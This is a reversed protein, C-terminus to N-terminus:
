VAFSADTAVRREYQLGDGEIYARTPFFWCIPVNGFVKRFNRSPGLDFEAVRAARTPDTLEYMEITTRGKAVLYAHFCVFVGLAFAFAACMIYGIMCITQLSKSLPITTTSNIPVTRRVTAFTLPLTKSLLHARTRPIASTSIIAYFTPFSVISVFLCGLFAYTIFSVFFKHNYFSVCNNVFVCHHDMRLICRSCVSCHHARDPKYSKCFRCYRLSGDYTREALYHAYRFTTKGVSHRQEESLLNRDEETQSRTHRPRIQLPRPPPARWDEPVSGPDAFVLLAYNALVNLYIFHFLIILAIATTPDVRYLPLLTSPVATIYALVILAVVAIVPVFGAIRTTTCPFPRVGAYWQSLLKNTNASPHSTPVSKENPLLTMESVRISTPRCFATSFM